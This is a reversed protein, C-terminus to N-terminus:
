LWEKIKEQYKNYFFGLVLLVIGLAMFSLIRYITELKWVDFIVVRGLACALVGLGLWRYVRERLAIGCGFLVLALVSWGATLYAGNEHHFVLRYSKDENCIWCTVYLWLSLGGVLIMAASFGSPVTYRGPLRRAVQQQVLLALIAALNPWYVTSGGHLPLWLLMMGIVGYAIAMLLSESSRRWGAWAFAVTELAMLVWIQERVPIYETVWWLSMALAVWRYILALQLLPTRVAPDAGAHSKFWGVTSASLLVIAAIPALPFYWAPKYEGLQLAFQVGSVILFVQGFAAVMWARTLVGYATIGVALASSLALWTPADVLPNVWFYIVAMLALAYLGQWFRSLEAPVRLMKQRQWWHALGLTVAIMTAPQWWPATIKTQGFRLLWEVHAIVLYGQGLLAFEPMRLVYISLTLLVTELALALPFTELTTNYWTAALWTMLALITFAAAPLRVVLGPDPKAHRHAWFANFALLGGVAATMCLARTDDRQLSDVGWAVALAGALYAGVEFVLSKRIISLTFLVVSEAALLLALNLGTFKAIFGVTVLLLGQTLYANAALPETRLFYRALESLALLVSGYVLLFQWLNGHHVQLMTLLFLVFFAGNNVTLFTARNIGSLKEHRSLFVATTFLIWYSILFYTGFWLGEDPSAWHWETGNFFRWFAYAAYTAALSAFSLGAWRNRVLFFVAAVTLVLNSYLTFHGVHTIISTYYALGVAFLALVESKKRDAVWVMFGAWILLLVGDLGANRIIQLQEVHYAAYTTFYVAALGGAFLVQGYNRLSEKAAKRQWWAGAALLGGSALYLLSVKEAPGLKGIFNKYAYTAFFVLGTLLMVIGIRVLWYTGVRMELSGEPARPPPTFPPVAKPPSMVPAAPPAIKPPEVRPNEFNASFMKAAPSIVPPLPPPKAPPHPAATVPASPAIPPAANFESVPAPVSELRTELRKLQGAISALEQELRAHRQKLSELESREAENM